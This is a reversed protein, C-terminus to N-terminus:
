ADDLKLLLVALQGNSALLSASNEYFMAKETQNALRVRFISYNDCLPKGASKLLRLQDKLAEDLILSEAESQKRGQVVFVPVRDAEITFTSLTLNTM